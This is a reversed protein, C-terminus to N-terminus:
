ISPWAKLSEAAAQTPDDLDRLDVVVARRYGAVSLAASYALLDLRGKGSVVRRFGNWDSLRASLPGGRIRAVTRLVDKGAKIILAPDVGAGIAAEVPKPLEDQVAHDAIPVGHKDAFAALQHRVAAELDAPFTLSLVPSGNGAATRWDAALEITSEVASVARATQDLFHHQPIWLDLGSLCLGLRRLISAVDRRASRDLERPRLGAMTADLQISRYGTAAVWDIAARPGTSWPPTQSLGAISLALAPSLPM